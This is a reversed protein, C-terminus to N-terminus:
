IIEQLSSTGKRSIYTTTRKYSTTRQSRAKWILIPLVASVTLFRDGRFMSRKTLEKGRGPHLKEVSARSSALKAALSELRGFKTPVGTDDTEFNYGAMFVILLSYDIPPIGSSIGGYINNERQWFRAVAM